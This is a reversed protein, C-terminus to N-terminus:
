SQHIRGERRLRRHVEEPHAIHGDADIEVPTVHDFLRDGIGFRGAALRFARASANVLSPDRILGERTAGLITLRGTYLDDGWVYYELSWGEQGVGENLRQILASPNLEVLARRPLSEDDSPPLLSLSIQDARFRQRLDNWLPRLNLGRAILLENM